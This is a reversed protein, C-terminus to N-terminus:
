KVSNERMAVLSLYEVMPDTSKVSKQLLADGEVRKGAAILLSGEIFQLDAHEGSGAKTHAAQTAAALKQQWGNEGMARLALWAFADDVSEFSESTKTLRGWRKKAAKEDGCLNEAVGLYYQFHIAKTFAGFGYLTFPLAEIEDGLTEIGTM